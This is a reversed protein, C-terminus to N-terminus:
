FSCLPNSVQITLQQIQFPHNPELGELLLLDRGNAFHVDQLSNFKCALTGYVYARIHEM